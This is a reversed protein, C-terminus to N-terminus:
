IECRLVQPSLFFLAIDGINHINKTVILRIDRSILGWSPIDSAKLHRQLSPNYFMIELVVGLARSLVAIDSESILNLILSAKNLPDPAFKELTKFINITLELDEESNLNGSHREGSWICTAFNILPLFISLAKLLFTENQSLMEILGWLASRNRFIHWIESSRRSLTYRKEPTESFKPDLLTQSLHSFRDLLLRQISFVADDKSQILMSLLRIVYKQAYKSIHTYRTDTPTNIVVPSTDHQVTRTGTNSKIGSIEKFLSYNLHKSIDSQERLEIIVKKELPSVFTCTNTWLINLLGDAVCSLDAISRCADVLMCAADSEINDEIIDLLLDRSTTRKVITNVLDFLEFTVTFNPGICRQKVYSICASSLRIIGLTLRPLTANRAQNIIYPLKSSVLLSLAELESAPFVVNSSRFLTELNKLTTLSRKPALSYNISLLNELVSKTIGPWYRAFSSNLFEFSTALVSRHAIPHTVIETLIKEAINEGKYLGILLMLSVLNKPNYTDSKPIYTLCAILDDLGSSLKDFEQIPSFKPQSLDPCGSFLKKGVTDFFESHFKECRRAAACIYSDNSINAFSCIHETVIFFSTYGSPSQLCTTAFSNLLNMYVKSVKIEFGETLRIESLGQLELEIIDSLNTQSLNMTFVSLKLLDPCVLLVTIIYSLLNKPPFNLSDAIKSPSRSTAM